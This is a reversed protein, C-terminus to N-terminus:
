DDIWTFSPMDLVNVSPEVGDKKAIVTVLKRLEIGTKLGMKFEKMFRNINKETVLNFIDQVTEVTYTKPNKKPNKKQIKVYFRGDEKKSEDTM